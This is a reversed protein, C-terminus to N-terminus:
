RTAPNMPPRKKWILIRNDYTKVALRDPGLITVHYCGTPAPAATWMEEGSPVALQRVPANARGSTLFASKYDPSYAVSTLDDISRSVTIALPADAACRVVGRERMAVLAESGDQNVAIWRPTVSIKSIWLVKMDALSIMAVLDDDPGPVEFALGATKGDGSVAMSQAIINRTIEPFIEKVSIRRSVVAPGPEHLALGANTFVLLRQTDPLFELAVPPAMQKANPNNPNMQRMEPPLTLLRKGADDEVMVAGSQNSFAIRKGDPTWALSRLTLTGSTSKGLTRVVALDTTDLIEIGASHLNALLTGKTTTRLPGRDLGVASVAQQSEITWLGDRFGKLIRKLRLRAEESPHSEMATRMVPEADIRQSLAQQAEDRLRVKPAALQDILAQLRAEESAPEQASLTTTLCLIALLRKM